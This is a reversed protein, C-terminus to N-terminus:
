PQLLIMLSIGLEEINFWENIKRENNIVEVDGEVCSLKVNTIQYIQEQAEPTDLPFTPVGDYFVNINNWPKLGFAKRCRQIKTAVLRYYYKKELEQDYHKDIILLVKENDCILEKYVNDEEKQDVSGITDVISKPIYTTTISFMHPELAFSKYTGLLLLQELESSTLKVLEGYAQSVSGGYKKFFESKIPKYTRIIDIDDILIMEIELINTEDAIISMLKNYRDSLKNYRESLRKSTAIKLKKIPKKLSINYTGRVQYICVIMNYIDDFDSARTRIDEGGKISLNYNTPLLHISSKKFFADEHEFMEKLEMYHHECFFPMVNKFSNIICKIVNYLTALSEHWTEINCKGKLLSRGLKIYGNNLIEVLKPLILIANKLDYNEMYNNHEKIMSDVQLIIWCNIYEKVEQNLSIVWSILTSTSASASTSASTSTSTSASTSTSTSASTSASTSTSTSASTSASTTHLRAMQYYVKFFSITNTLPIIIEKMMDHVGAKSFKLPEAKSAPSSLLYLRLADSGYENVIDMPDPYNRLRKSMKKGDEALIIGNVIVNKFPIISFLSASLVLLTYFWGRTQDLGEAIFDAPLINHIKNDHTKIYPYGNSDYEIGTDSKRLIEVIGISSLSGYPMAGSEFWCDLVDECRRYEKGDRRIIIKDIHHRHLDIVSGYPLEALEELEYSSGVCIEDGDESIWIPIPTGWFRSRSIGWDKANELWTSFRKKGVYSPYWNIQENLSVLKERMDEVKVFYSNVARYILPTDSRWCFPYNHIIQEKAFFLGKEKLRLIIFTNFDISKGEEKQGDNYHKYYYGKCEPILDNIYGNADIHIFLNDEKKIVGNKLCVRNDDEGFPPSLHVIGTGNTDTVYDDEYVRFAGIGNLMYPTPPVYEMGVISSGKFTEVVKFDYKNVMIKIITSVLKEAIVVLTPPQPPQPPQHPQAKLTLQLLQYNMDKNVCLAYNAPLTWPTTTWVLLDVNEYNMFKEKLHVKFYLSDDKIEKYNQQTEFNSLPTSLAPSYPMIRTGRYIRNQEYLEKFTWWTSNMFQPSMTKYDNEFDVWRGLRGMIEEWKDTYKLVISSCANNYYDIGVKLVEDRTKIGKEKEIEFEIPLGHCDWGWNRPCNLGSNHAYRLITDKIYSALIHGYHPLGTAFPPGDYTVFTKNSRNNHVSNLFTGEEKWKNYINEENNGKTSPSDM